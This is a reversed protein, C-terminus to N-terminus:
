WRGSPGGEDLALWGDLFDFTKGKVLGSTIAGFHDCGPASVALAGPIAEALGEPSGALLDRAGAIVLTPLQLGFLDDPAIDRARGQSCAALALRDEGQEDAFQRFSRLLPNQIDDAKDAQMAEAMAGTARPPDFLRAGIGALVLNNFRRGHDLAAILSLRAGMSFGILDAREVGLHDMLAVIDGAMESQDYDAPDHSKASQGHGRFDLAILRERRQEIAAYWGTRLWGEQRNSSFGHALVVCKLDKSGIDDYAIELGRATVFTAM